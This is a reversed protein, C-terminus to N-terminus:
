DISRKGNHKGVRRDKREMAGAFIAAVRELEALTLHKARWPWRHQAEFLLDWRRAAARTDDDLPLIVQDQDYERGDPRFVRVKARGNADRIEALVHGDPTRGVVVAHLYYPQGDGVCVGRIVAGDGAQFASSRGESRGNTMTGEAEAPGTPQPDPTADQTPTADVHAMPDGQHHKHDPM